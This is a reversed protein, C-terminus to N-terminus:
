TGGSRVWELTLKLANFLPEMRVVEPTDRDQHYFAFQQQPMKFPMLTIAKIGAQAFPFADCGAGMVGGNSIKYPVRARQAANVVSKVIEPSYKVMGNLDSAIISIETHAIIEYNLVRTELRKLEELHREVYRKSGRCGAEESGFTIFRIETDEPINAPNEVLFKCMAVAVACASLNDAAGPVIGGNKKGRTMFAAYIMAPVIPYVLLYWRVTGAHVIAENGLALGILQILCLVALAAIGIFFTASLLYFWYGTYRIWTNELASDHHGSIILLRKGEKTGPKHLSGIVNISQKKPYFPDFAERCLLFELIFSAPIILSFILALLALVGTLAGNLQGASINLLVAIVMCIVGPYTSLLADPALSFEEINVNKEGIHSALAQRIMEARGREQPTGPLGPGVENCIKKIIGWAYQADPITIEDAM